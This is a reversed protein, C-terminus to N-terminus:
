FTETQVSHFSCVQASLVGQVRRYPIVRLTGLPTTMESINKLVDVVFTPLGDTETENSTQRNDVTEQEVGIAQRKVHIKKRSADEDLLDSPLQAKALRRLLM